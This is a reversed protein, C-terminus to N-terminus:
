GIIKSEMSHNEKFLNYTYSVNKVEFGVQRPKENKGGM